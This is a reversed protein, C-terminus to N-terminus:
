AGLYSVTLRNQGNSIELLNLSTGSTQYATIQIYDGAVLYITQNILYSQASGGTPYMLLWQWYVGNKHISLQRNGNANGDFMVIGNVSYYGTKGNPITIRSNNTSNDHFGDTDYDEANWSVNTLTSSSISQNANSYM